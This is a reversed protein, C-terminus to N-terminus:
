WINTFSRGTRKLVKCIRKLYHNKTTYWVVPKLNLPKLHAGQTYGSSAQCMKGQRVTLSLCMLCDRSNSTICHNAFSWKSRSAWLQPVTKQIDNCSVDALESVTNQHFSM